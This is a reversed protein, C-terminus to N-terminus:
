KIAVTIIVKMIVIMIIIIDPSTLLMNGQVSTDYSINQTTCVVKNDQVYDINTKLENIGVTSILNLPQVWVFPM